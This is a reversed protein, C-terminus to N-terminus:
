RRPRDLSPCRRTPRRPGGPATAVFFGRAMPFRFRLRPAVPRGFVARESKGVLGHTGVTVFHKVTSTADIECDPSFFDHVSGSAILRDDGLYFSRKM